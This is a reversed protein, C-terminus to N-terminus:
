KIVEVKDKSEKFMTNNLIVTIVLSVINSFTWYLAFTADYRWCFFVTILPMMYTMMKMSGAQGNADNKPQKRQTLWTSLFTTAGSLLPLIAMGNTRSAFNEVSNTIPLIFAEYAKAFAAGGDKALVYQLNGAADFEVTFFHLRYLLENLAQEHEAYFVFEKINNTQAYNAWFETASMMAGGKVLNDPRWINTIWLFRFGQFTELGNGADIELMLNLFQEGSWARFANFFMILLPFMILMPLCGGFTSVGRDKMLKRQELNLKQPDNEYKKRLKDLDPQIEQMKLSSKRSKIDTFLTLCKIGITFLLITVVIIWGAAVGTSMGFLANLQEYVWSMGLYLWKTLFFSDTM